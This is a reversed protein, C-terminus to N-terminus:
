RTRFGYQRRLKLSLVNLSEKPFTLLYQRKAEEVDRSFVIQLWKENINDLVYKEKMLIPWKERKFKDVITEQNDIDYKYSVFKVADEISLNFYVRMRQVDMMIYLEKLMRDEKQFDTEKGVGRSFGLIKNLSEQCNSDLFRGFGEALYSMVYDPVPLRQQYALIFSVLVGIPSREKPEEKEWNRLLSRAIEDRPMRKVLNEYCKPCTKQQCSDDISLPCKGLDKEMVVEGPPKRRHEL